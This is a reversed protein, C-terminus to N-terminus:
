STFLFSHPTAKPSRLRLEAWRPSRRPEPSGDAEQEKQTGGVLRGLDLQRSLSDEPGSPLSCVDAGACEGLAAQDGGLPRPRKRPAHPTRPLPRTPAGTTTARTVALTHTHCSITTVWLRALRPAWRPRPALVRAVPAGSTSLPTVDPLPRAQRVGSTHARSRNLGRHRRRRRGQCTLRSQPPDWSQRLRAPCLVVTPAAGATAGPAGGGARRMRASASSQARPARSERWPGAGRGRATPRLPSLALRRGLEEAPRVELEVEGRM